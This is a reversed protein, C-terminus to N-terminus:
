LPSGWHSPLLSDEQLARSAPSMPEVGPDPLDGLPPFPLGSWYEQRSFGMSLLAQHNGHVPSDWPCLLGHPRLSDSAVSCAHAEAIGVTSSFNAGADLTEMWFHYHDSRPVTRQGPSDLHWKGCRWNVDAPFQVTSFVVRGHVWFSLHPCARLFHQMNDSLKGLALKPFKILAHFISEGWKQIIYIGLSHVIDSSQM